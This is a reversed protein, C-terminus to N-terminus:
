AAVSPTSHAQKERLRPPPGGITYREKYTLMHWFITTLRRMVAVRAIKSGRRLKIKRYWARMKPDHKLLHLVLQGLIFRATQSGQKTISGLRDQANGSNRCGPTLGFYNALSRPRPFREIPGIRSALTMGSYFSVGPTTMLIQTPNLEGNPAPRSVREAIEQDVRLIQEDCADWENLLADMELRDVVPLSVKALWSRGARTQFTKTPYQWILNYRNVIRHIKNLTRIRRQGLSKLLSTLQRDEREEQSVMYVRRLGRVVQGAAIRERNIWLLDALKQADRRDTKKKSPKEPHILVIQRCNRRRLEEVLWDNFGCVELIAMFEADMETFQGFFSEIKEPRTSVQRRLVTDGEENRVCVTIQKAHQDIALYLIM